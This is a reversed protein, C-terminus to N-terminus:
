CIRPIEGCTAMRSGEDVKNRNGVLFERMLVRRNNSLREKNDCEELNNVSENFKNSLILNMSPLQDKKAMQSAIEEECPITWDFNDFRDM